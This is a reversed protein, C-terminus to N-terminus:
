PAAPELVDMQAHLWPWVVEAVLAHGQENPHYDGPIVFSSLDNTAMQMLSLSPEYFPIHEISFFPTARELFAETPDGSVNDAKLATWGTTTVWLAAEHTRCWANLERFLAQGLAVGRVSEQPDFSSSPKVIEGHRPGRYARRTVQPSDGGTALCRRMGHRVLQLLHSRELMWQFSEHQALRALRSPAPPPTARAVLNSANNIDFLRSKLSRGIDDTNLFVLVAVPHLRDGFDQVFSVYDATGWGITGANLLQFVGAGFAEDAKHQLRAVFTDEESVLWGCTYSDGVILVHRAQENVEPGRLHDHNFRYQVVRDRYQHQVTRGPTNLSYGRPSTTRWSGSLDQPAFLRVVVEGLVTAAAVGAFLLLLKRMLYTDRMMM